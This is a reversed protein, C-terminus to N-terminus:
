GQLRQGVGEALARDYVLRAAAVDEIAHGTSKYVTLEGPSRRGPRTAAIVEGLETVDGPELGALDKAGAPYPETVAGRWEVFVSGRRVIEPDLEAGFGVSTVHAGPALQGLRIVPEDADTCCCVLDAGDLAEEFSGTARAAPHGAALAQAHEPTRSAIRIERFGRLVDLHARGQAGAGVIALVGADERALRQVSVAVAAATRMATLHAADMVALPRGDHEDFLALLGQHSPIDTGHNGPFVSIAKVALGAGPVYGPMSGLLGTPARAGMRPPADCEGASFAVFAAELAALLPEPALLRSV